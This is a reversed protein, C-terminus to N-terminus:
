LTCDLSPMDVEEGEEVTNNVQLISPMDVEEGEEVINNEINQALRAIYNNHGKKTIIQRGV